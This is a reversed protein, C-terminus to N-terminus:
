KSDNWVGKRQQFSKQCTNLRLEIQKHELKTKIVFDTRINLGFCSSRPMTNGSFSMASQITCTLLFVHIECSFVFSIEM